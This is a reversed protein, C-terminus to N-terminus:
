KIKSIILNHNDCFSNKINRIALVEILKSCLDQSDEVNCSYGNTGDKIVESIFSVCRTAVIPKNLYMAELVVNPLGEMRSSLVFVDCQNMYQYINHKFGLFHIYNVNVNNIIKQAYDLNTRGLIFLHAKPQKIKVEKFAEILVDYGKAYTFNGVALYVLINKPFVRNSDILQKDIYEKDIPNTLISTKNLLHPYRINFEDSMEKTQFIIKNSRKFILFHFRNIVKFKLRNIGIGTNNSLKTPLRFIFKIQVFFSLISLLLGVTYHSCFVTEFKNKKLFDYLKKGSTILRSKNLYLLDINSNELWCDLEKTKNGLVLITVKYGDNLIMKAIIISVREAGGCQAVPLIFLYKNKNM